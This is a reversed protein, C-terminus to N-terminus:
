EYMVTGYKDETYNVDDFGHETVGEVSLLEPVEHSVGVVFNDIDYFYLPYKSNFCETGAEFIYISDERVVGNELENIVNSLNDTLAEQDTRALYFSSMDVDRQAAMYGLELVADTGRTYIDWPLYIIHEKERLLIDWAEENLMYNYEEKEDYKESIQEIGGSMDIFQIVLVVMLFGIKGVNSSKEVKFSCCLAGLMILYCIPWVFRGSARFISLLETMFEPYPITILVKEGLTITPSLAVIGLIICVFIGLWMNNKETMEAYIQKRYLFLNYLSIFLLIIVGAGLYGFGEAQGSTYELASLINGESLPNFFTNLNASYTGLGGASFGGGPIFAGYGTLTILMIGVNGGFLLVASKWNKDELYDRVCSVLLILLVMPVFYLHTGAIVFSLAFWLGLKKVFHDKCPNYLWLVLAALIIWHSALATHQFMRQLIYPSIIFFLSGFFAMISNLYKRLLINSFGGMLAFSLWGYIGFYQFTDPLFSRFLKCVLACLPLSDTFIISTKDPVTLGEIIGFPFQWPTDRYYLWGIYHQRLDGGSILWADYTVDLVNIGYILLFAISGLVCGLGFQVWLSMNCNWLKDFRVTIKKNCVTRKM